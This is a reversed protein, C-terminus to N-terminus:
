IFAKFPFLVLPVPVGWLFPLVSFVELIAWDNEIRRRNM